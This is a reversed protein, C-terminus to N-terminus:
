EGVNLESPNERIGFFEDVRAWSGGRGHDFYAVVRRPARVSEHQAREHLLVEHQRLGRAVAIVGNGGLAHHLV